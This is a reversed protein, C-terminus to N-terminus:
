RKRKGKKPKRLPKAKPKVPPPLDNSTEGGDLIGADHSESPEPSPEVESTKEEAPLSGQETPAEPNQTTSTTPVPEPPVLTGGGPVEPQLSPTPPVERTPQPMPIKTEQTKQTRRTVESQMGVAILLGVIGVVLVLGILLLFRNSRPMELPFSELKEDEVCNRYSDIVAQVAAITPIPNKPAFSPTSASPPNEQTAEPPTPAPYAPLEPIETEKLPIEQPQKLNSDMPRDAEERPLQSPPPTSAVPAPSSELIRRSPKTGTTSRFQATPPRATTSMSSSDKGAPLADVKAIRDLLARVNLNPPDLDLVRLCADKADSFQGNAISIEAALLQAEVNNPDLHLAKKIEQLSENKMLLLFLARAYVLRGDFFDPHHALGMECVKIAEKLKGRRILIEALPAFVRSQPDEKLLNLYNRIETDSVAPQKPPLEM